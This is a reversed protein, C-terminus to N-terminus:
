EDDGWIMYRLRMMVRRWLPLGWWGRWCNSCMCFDYCPGMDARTPAERCDDTPAM